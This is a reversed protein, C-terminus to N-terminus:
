GRTTSADVIAKLLVDFAAPALADPRGSTFGTRADRVRPPDRDYRRVIEDSEEPAARWSAIVDAAVERGEALTRGSQLVLGGACELRSRVKGGLQGTAKLPRESVIQPAAREETWPAVRVSAVVLKGPEDNLAGLRLRHLGAEARLMGFAYRGKIGLLAAEDDERPERLVDVVMRRHRAWADYISIMLDRADRGSGGLPRIEVLADGAGEAGLLVVERRAEGIADELTRVRAGITELDVRRSSRVLSQAIAVQRERLRALRDVSSEIVSLERHIREASAGGKWFDPANREERLRDRAIALRELDMEEALADLRAATAVIRADLDATSVLRGADDRASQRDDREARSEETEVVRVKIEDGKASVKLISGPLVDRDILMMALPLVIRRQVERKLARAGYRADVGEAIVLDLAGDDVDVVLQQGAIGERRLVRAVEHRAVDRLQDKSLAHFVVVHQFRNLFEPRFEAELAARIKGERRADDDGGGGFGLSRAADQAGVNSTAIVVTNRFDVTDGSPATARGEDLLPLLLDYINPHAKELEDFLVVQFPQARVPDLLRAPKDPNHLDGLLMAFSAYDKFESLDFRLLRHPSGFLFTSLARALETKGVGTPGVFFFTGLPKTPDHLGAKFLAIAEVVADIAARQGVIREAFWARMAGASMTVARSVVFAPLGSMISFVREVFTPSIPELEGIGRKQAQYDVVQALLVAAPGPQPRAALFRSTLKVMARRSPADVSAGLRDAARALALDVHEDDLPAVDVQQFLSAFSPVRQMARLTEPTAEAVLLVRGSEVFPRLADLVSTNSQVTRGATAIQLIDTVFLAAGTAALQNAMQTVRTQWEGLYRTGAFMSTSSTEFLAGRGRDAMARAVGHVITTKGVGAVGVLLVSRRKDLLDLVQATEGDRFDAARLEGAPALRVLDRADGDLLMPFSDDDDTMADCQVWSAPREGVRIHRVNFM